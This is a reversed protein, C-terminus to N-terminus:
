FMKYFDERHKEAKKLEDFTMNFIIMAPAEYDSGVKEKLLRLILEFVDPHDLDKLKFSSYRKVSKPYQNRFRRYEDYYYETVAKSITQLLEPVLREGANGIYYNYIVDYFQQKSDMPVPPTLLESFFKTLKSFM